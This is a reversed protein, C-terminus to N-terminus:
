YGLKKGYINRYVYKLWLLKGVLITRRESSKVGDFVDMLANYTDKSINAWSGAIADYSCFVCTADKSIEVKDIHLAPVDSRDFVPM